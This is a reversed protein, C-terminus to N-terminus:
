RLCRQLFYKVACYDRNTSATSCCSSVSDCAGGSSASQRVMNWLQMSWLYSTYCASVSNCAGGASTIWRVSTELHPSWATVFKSSSKRLIFCCKDHPLTFVLSNSKWARRHTLSRTHLVRLMQQATPKCQSKNLEFRISTKAALTASLFYSNFKSYSNQWSFLKFIHTVDQANFVFNM